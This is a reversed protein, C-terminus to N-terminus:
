RTPFCAHEHALDVGAFSAHCANAYLQGDCGCAPDWRQTCFEARPRCIGPGECNGGERSCYLQDDSCDSDYQCAGIAPECADDCGDGDTDEPLTGEACLIAFDCADIRTGTFRLKTPPKIVQILGRVESCGASSRLRLHIGRAIGGCNRWRAKAALGRRTMRMKAPTPPCFPELAVRGAEISLTIPPADAALFPLRAEISFRANLCDQASADLGASLAFCGVLVALYLRSAM